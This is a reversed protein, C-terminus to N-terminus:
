SLYIEVQLWVCVMFHAWLNGPQATPLKLESIFFFPQPLHMRKQLPGPEPTM